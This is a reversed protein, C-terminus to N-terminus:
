LVLKHEKGAEALGLGFDIPFLNYIRWTGDIQFRNTSPVGGIKIEIDGEVRLNAKFSFVAYDSNDM